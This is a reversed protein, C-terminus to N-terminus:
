APQDVRQILDVTELGGSMKLYDPVQNCIVLPPRFSLSPYRQIFLDTIHKAQLPTAFRPDSRIEIVRYYTRLPQKGPWNPNSYPTNRPSAPERISGLVDARLCTLCHWVWLWKDLNGSPCAPLPQARVPDSPIMVDFWVRDFARPYRDVFWHWLVVEARAMRRPRGRWNYHYGASFPFPKPDGRPM